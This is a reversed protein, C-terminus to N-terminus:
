NVPVDTNGAGPIVGGHRHTDGIDTENHRVHGNSFDVDGEVKLDGKLSMAQGDTELELGGIAVRIIEAKLEIRVDGFTIVNEDGQQSPSPNSSSWSLPLAVGQQLDGSPALITYQQGVSPPTHVKLAGAMQAYPIWPSLFRGNGGHAPGLDLRLRAKGADVEAVRGHRMGGAVRLELDAVRAALAAFEHFAM